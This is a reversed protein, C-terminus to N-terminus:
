APWRLTAFACALVLLQVGVCAAQRRLLRLAGRARADWSRGAKNAPMLRLAGLTTDIAAADGLRFLDADLAVRIAWYKQPLVSVISVVCLVWLLRPQSAAASWSAAMGFLGAVALCGALRDLDRGRRLLAAVAAPAIGTAPAAAGAAQLSPPTQASGSDAPAQSPVSTESM